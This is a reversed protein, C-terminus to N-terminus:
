EAVYEFKGQKATLDSHVVDLTEKFSEEKEAIQLQLGESNKHAQHLEEGAIVEKLTQDVLSSAIAYCLEKYKPSDEIKFNSKVEPGYPTESHTDPITEPTFFDANM